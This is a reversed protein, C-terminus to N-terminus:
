QAGNLLTNLASTDDRAMDEVLGACRHETTRKRTREDVHVPVQTDDCRSCFGILEAKFM